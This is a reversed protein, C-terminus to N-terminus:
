KAEKLIKDCASVVSTLLNNYDRMLQTHKTLLDNYEAQLASYQEAETLQIHTIDNPM